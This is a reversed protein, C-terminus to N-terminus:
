VAIGRFPGRSPESDDPVFGPRRRRVSGKSPPFPPAGRAKAGAALRAGSSDESHDGASENPATERAPGGGRDGAPRALRWAVVCGGVVLLGAAVLARRMKM